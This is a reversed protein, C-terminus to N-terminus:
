ARADGSRTPAARDGRPARRLLAGVDLVTFLREGARGVGALLDSRQGAIGQPCPEISGPVLRVVSAVRDVLLGCSGGGPDVVVIKGEGEALSAAPLGLRRRPDVVAIVEGRVTVVGLIHAPARPVEAVPPARIVERVRDIAVAYEDDGLLFTLYEERALPEPAPDAGPAPPALQPVPPAAEDARYFFDDLPDGAEAPCPAPPVIAFRPEGGPVPGPGREEPAARAEPDPPAAPPAGGGPRWTTFRAGSAAGAPPPPLAGLREALAAAAAHEGALAPEAAAPPAAPADAPAAEAASPEAARAQAREKAKKRIELFDM